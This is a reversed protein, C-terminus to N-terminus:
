NSESSFFFPMLVDNQGESWVMTRSTVAPGMQEAALILASAAQLV